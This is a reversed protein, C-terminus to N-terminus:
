WYIILFTYWPIVHMVSRKQPSSVPWRPLNGGDFFINLCFYIIQQNMSQFRNFLCYFQLHNSVGHRAPSHVYHILCHHKPFYSTRQCMIERYNGLLDLRNQVSIDSSVYEHVRCVTHGTASEDLWFRMLTQHYFVPHWFGSAVDLHKSAPAPDPVTFKDDIHIGYIM